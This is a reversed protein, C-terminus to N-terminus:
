VIVGAILGSQIWGKLLSAAHMGANEEGVWECSKECIDGFTLGNLVADIAWAEEVTISCFRNILDRRWMIWSVPSLAQIPEDPIVNDSISQWIQIINWSLTIRHVTPHARLRMNQWSDPPIKAVEDIQLVASDAADFVLTQKWEFEALETLYEFAKYDQHEKLFAPLSDGFWRISRKCSPYENIYDSAMKKFIAMGLYASLVPYNSDLAEILRAQYANSYIALRTEAPVKETSVIRSKIESCNKLLYGQFQDQLSFLETM